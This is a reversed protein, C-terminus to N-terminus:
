WRGSAVIGEEGVEVGLFRSTSPQEMCSVTESVEEILIGIVVGSECSENGYEVYVRQVGGKM